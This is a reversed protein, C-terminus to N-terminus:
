RLRKRGASEKLELRDGPSYLRHKDQVDSDALESYRRTMTLTSHGLMKQLSFVDGGARLYSVACTHRLMHPYMHPHNVGAKAAVSKVIARLRYHDLKDGYVTVFLSPTDVEARRALYQRMTSAVVSGFPVRRAKDGKGHRILFMNEEFDVDSITLDCLESARLGCDVLALLILRDRTGAFGNECANVMAEVQEQSLPEIIPISFKPKTVTTMPNSPLFEEQHLFKFFAHMCAYYRAATSPSTATAKEILFKRLDHSTVDAANRGDLYDGLGKLIITNLTVTAASLNRAKCDTLYVKAADELTEPATGVTVTILRNELAM